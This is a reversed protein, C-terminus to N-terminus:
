ESAYPNFHKKISSGRLVVFKVEGSSILVKSRSDVITVSLTHEGRSLNEMNSIKSTGKHVQKGDLSFVIKDSPRLKPSFSLAASVDGDNARITQGPKPAIINLKKYFVPSAEKSAVRVPAVKKVSVEEDVDKYRNAFGELVTLKPPAIPTASVGQPPTDGFVINGSQDTWSFMGAIVISPSCLIILLMLLNQM